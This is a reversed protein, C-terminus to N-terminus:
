GASVTTGLSRCRRSWLRFPVRGRRDMCGCWLLFCINFLRGVKIGRILRDLVKGVDSGEEMSIIRMHDEENVWVLFNKANNHFIGRGQLRM